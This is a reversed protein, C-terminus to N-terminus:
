GVLELDRLASTAIACAGPPMLRSGEAWSRDYAAADLASRCTALAGDRLGAEWPQLRSGRRELVAEAAAALRVASAAVGGAALVIAVGTLAYGLTEANGDGLDSSHSMVAALIEGAARWEGADLEVYALGVRATALMTPDDRSRDVLDAFLERAQAHRGAVSEFGALNFLHASLGEDDAAERAAAVADRMRNRARALDGSFFDIVGSCALAWGLEALPGQERYIAISRQTAAAAGALDDAGVAFWARGLLARALLPSPEAGPIVRDLWRVADSRRGRRHWYAWSLGALELARSPDRDVLWELAADVDPAHEDLRRCREEPPWAPPPDGACERVLELVQGAHRDRTAAAEGRAELSALAFGRVLRGLRFRGAADQDVLHLRHLELLEPTVDAGEGVVARAAASTFAGPFVACRDLVTARSPALLGHSWAVAARVSRHRAPLHRVTAASGTGEVAALVAQDWTMARRHLAALELALPMGDLRRAVEVLQRPDDGVGAPGPTGVRQVLLRVAPSGAIAEEDTEGDTPLALPGLGVVHEGMVGLAARATVLVTLCADVALLHVIEAVCGPVLDAGDVVLLRREAAAAVPPQQPWDPLQSGPAPVQSGPASDHPDRAAFASRVLDCAVALERVEALDVVVVGGPFRDPGGALRLRAEEALRSKGVGAPGTLTVLRARGAELVRLVAGLEGERGVLLGAPSPAAGGLEPRSAVSAPRRTATVAAEFAASLRPGPDLGLEDRLVKRASHYATVAEAARGSRALATVLQSRFTERLPHEVVLGALDALVSDTRGLALEVDIRQELAVLRLEELRSAPVRAFERDRLDGLFPGRWLQLGDALLGAAREHEGAMRAQGAARLATEFRVTDLEDPAVAFSYGGAITRIRGPGLASRLRSVAMQLVTAASRPPGDEWVLDVLRDRSVVRGAHLLLVALLARQRPGGVALAAGDHHVQLPGLLHFQVRSPYTPVPGAPRM